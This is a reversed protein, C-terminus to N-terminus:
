ADVGIRVFTSCSSCPVFKERTKSQSFDLLGTPALQIRGMIGLPVRQDKSDNGEYIM